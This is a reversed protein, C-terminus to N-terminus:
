RGHCRKFKVGSGCHCPDNRGIKPTMRRATGRGLLQQAAEDLEADFQWPEKSYVVIDGLRESTAISGLGLWEAARTEYKKLQAYAMTRHELDDVDDARTVFSIGSKTEDSLTAISHVKGDRRTMEKANLLQEVLADFSDGAFDFLMFIADVFGAEGSSKLDEILKDHYENRWGHFLQDADPSEPQEGRVAPYHADILQAMSSDVSVMDFPPGHYLKKRLHYALLSMEEDARFFEALTTRQRVYYMFGFPDNLYHCVLELDFLSLAIPYPDDAQRSLYTHVQHTLSPYHDSVVCAVFADDIALEVEAGNQAYARVAPDDLLERCSLGQAYADQIAAAFDEKLKDTDGRRALETLRKSKCQVILAKRGVTALVDIEGVIASGKRLEVSRHVNGDGFVTALMEACLAETAEGRNSSANDRYADDRLMWYYPSEYLSRALNFHVPVFYRGDPLTVLPHSEIQNYQGPETLSDNVVGPELSFAKFFAAVDDASAVTVEEQSVCFLALIADAFEVFSQPPVDPLSRITKIARATRAATSWDLGVKNRLWDDDGEYRRPALTWYQFDYAGSGSYFISETMAEGAGFLERTHEEFTGGERSKEFQKTMREVIVAGHSMHLEEFLSRTRAMQDQMEDETPHAMDIPRKVLLGALFSFEQYSLRARWDIDAAERPDYFLDQLLLVALTYLFGREQVLQELDACIDDRNRAV